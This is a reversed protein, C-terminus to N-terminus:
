IVVIISKFPAILEYEGRGGRYKSPSSTVYYKKRHVSM